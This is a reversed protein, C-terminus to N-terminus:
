EVRNWDTEDMTDMHLWNGDDYVLPNEELEEEEDDVVWGLDSMEERHVWHDAYLIM